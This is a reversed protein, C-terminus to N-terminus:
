LSGSHDKDFTLPKLATWIKENLTQGNKWLREMRQQLNESWTSETHVTESWMFSEQYNISITNEKTRDSITVYWM